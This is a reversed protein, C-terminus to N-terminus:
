KKVFRNTQGNLKYIYVGSSFETVDIIIEGNEGVVNKQLVKKGNADFIELVGNKGSGLNNIITINNDTPNPFGFMSSGIIKQQAVTLTGTLSYIDYFWDYPANYPYSVTILKFINNSDKVIYASFKNGFQQIVVGNENYLTQINTIPSTGSTQFTIIFEILNDSNFLHDSIAYLNNINYGPNPTISVTKILSHTNNYIKLINAVDDLTYYHLLGNSIFATSNERPWIKTVYSHELTAQGFSLNSISITAILGLIIKKM